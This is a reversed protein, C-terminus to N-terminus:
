IKGLFKFLNLKRKRAELNLYIQRLENISGELNKLRFYYSPHRISYVEIGKRKLKRLLNKKVFEGMLIIVTPKVLSIEKELWFLCKQIEKETPERNRPTSCKLINTVFIDYYDLGSRRLALDFFDGSTRIKNIDESPSVGEFARLKSDFRRYSPALGIFLLKIKNNRKIKHNLTLKGQKKGPFFQNCDLESLKCKGCEQIAHNLSYIREEFM